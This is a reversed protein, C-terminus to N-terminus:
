RKRWRVKDRDRETHTETKSERKPHTDRETDRHKQGDTQRHRETEIMIFSIVVVVERPINPSATNVTGRTTHPIHETGGRPVTNASLRQLSGKSLL